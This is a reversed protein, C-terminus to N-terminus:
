IAAVVIISIFLLIIVVWYVCTKDKTEVVSIHQTETRVRTDTRDIQTGLDDLIENHLDVENSITHAINKQRSIIQALNDLGQEQEGLMRKQDAKLQEVSYNSLEDSSHSDGWASAGAEGMLRRRDEQAKSSAQNEFLNQMKIANSHLIELQRTRRESEAATISDRRTTIDLKQKLQGVENNYQKLRLRITASLHSYKDSTRPLKQRQMLQEMIDRYLKECSEYEVLWPDEGLNLLAM